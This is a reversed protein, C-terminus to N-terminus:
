YVVVVVVVVWSAKAVETEVADADQPLQVLRVM